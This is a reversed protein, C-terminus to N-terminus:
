KRYRGRVEERFRAVKRQCLLEIIKGNVSGMRNRKTRYEEDIM